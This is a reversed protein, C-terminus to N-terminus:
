KRKPRNWIFSSLCSPANTPRLEKSIFEAISSGVGAVGATAARAAPNHTSKLELSWDDKAIHYHHIQGDSQCTDYAFPLTEDSRCNAEEEEEEEAKDDIITDYDEDDIDLDEEEEGDEDDLDEV